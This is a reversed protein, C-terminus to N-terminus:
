AIFSTTGGDVNYSSGTIFGARDSALFAVLGSVDEVKGFEGVVLNQQALQTFVDEVGTGLNEALAAAEREWLPTRVLAPCVSNVTILPALEQSLTKSWSLMAAKAANYDGMGPAPTHGSVSAINVIRGFPRQQLHPVAARTCRVASFLNADLTQQWAEDATSWDRGLYADGANNVVVDIAGLEAAAEAVFRDVDDARACDAVVPVVRVGFARAAEATEDLAEQGRACFAVDAGEQALELVIARGIGKSAGTVIAVKGRLGLEM